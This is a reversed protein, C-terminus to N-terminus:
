DFSVGTATVTFTLYIFEITKTPQLTIGCRFENRDIVDPTNESLDIKYATLGKRQVVSALYPDVKAKFENQLATTNQEFLLGAAMKKITDKVEILLRRVNVRDLASAKKQLTKQGYVVIGAGPMTAIPNINKEYLTDRDAKTLKVATQIVGPLGGRTMGAPAFWPASTHDTYTYVGPIVTSAPCWVYRGTASMMQVWPWYSAGYSNNELNAEAVLKAQKFSFPVLDVPAICDTRTRALSLLDDVEKTTLLGPASIINIHYEDTNGLLQIVDDYDTAKISQNFEHLTEGNVMQDFYLASGSTDEVASGGDNVMYCTGVVGTGGYFGGRGNAPLSGTYIDRPNGETDFYNVTDKTNLVRVYKSLNPYNGSLELIGANLVERQDGIVRRIYNPNNPDLSVVPYSELIIQNRENDDGRRINLGFTGKDVNVNFIEWRLNDVSGSKASGDINENVTATATPDDIDVAVWSNSTANNMIAGESLTELEFSAIETSGTSAITTSKAPNWAKTSGSTNAVRVVLLSEGGQEFYNKAAISTLFEQTYVSSGSVYTFVDGFIRQYEPYSTVKTPVKVRGKVTPGLIAAGAVLPRPAIASQDVEVTSIGPSILTEAM